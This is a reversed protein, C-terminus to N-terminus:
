EGGSVFGDLILLHRLLNMTIMYVCNMTCTFFFFFFYAREPSRCSQRYFNDAADIVAAWNM